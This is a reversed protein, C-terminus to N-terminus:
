PEQPEAEAEVTFPLPNRLQLDLHLADLSESTSRLSHTKRQCKLSPM